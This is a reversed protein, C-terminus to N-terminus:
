RNFYLRWGPMEVRRRQAHINWLMSPIGGEPKLRQILMFMLMSGKSEDMDYVFGGPIFFMRM